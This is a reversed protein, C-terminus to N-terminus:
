VCFVSKADGLDSHPNVCETGVRGCDFILFNPLVNIVGEFINEFLFYFLIRSISM